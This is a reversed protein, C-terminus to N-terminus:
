LNAQQCYPHAVNEGFRTGHRQRVHRQQSACVKLPGFCLLFQAPIRFFKEIYSIKKRRRILLQIIAYFTLKFCEMLTCSDM